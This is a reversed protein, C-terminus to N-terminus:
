GFDGFVASPAMADITSEGAEVKYPFAFFTAGAKSLAEAISISATSPDLYEKPKIAEFSFLLVMPKNRSLNLKSVEEATLKNGKQDPLYVGDRDGHSFFILVDKEKQITEVLEEKM